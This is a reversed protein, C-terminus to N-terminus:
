REIKQAQELIESPEINWICVPCHAEELCSYDRSDNCPVCKEKGVIASVSDYHAIRLSPDVSGFLGIGPVDMSGALHIGSSDPGVFIACEAIVGAYEEISLKGTLNIAGAPVDFDQKDSLLAVEYGASLALEVFEVWRPKPWMRSWGDATTQVAIYDVKKDSLGAEKLKALAATRWSHLPHLKWDTSYDIKKVDLLEAFMETRKIYASEKDFDVRNILNHVASFGETDMPLRPFGSTPHQYNLIITKDVARSGRLLKACAPSTAYVYEAIGDNSKLTALAPLTMLIDGIGRCRAVLVRPKIETTAPQLLSKVAKMVKKVSISKLGLKGASLVACNDYTSYLDRFNKWVVVVIPVSLAGAVHMFGTDPGAMVDMASVWVMAERLDKGVVKYVNTGRLLRRQSFGLGEAFVFVNYRSSLQRILVRTYAWDKVGFRSSLVIGINTDPFLTRLTRAELQESHSLYLAPKSIASNPLGADKYMRELKGAGGGNINGLCKGPMFGIAETLDLTRIDKPVPQDKDLGTIHPHYKLLEKFSSQIYIDCHLTKSLCDAIPELLVTDGIYYRNLVNIPPFFNM